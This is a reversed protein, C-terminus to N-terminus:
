FGGLSIPLITTRSGSERDVEKQWHRRQALLDDYQVTVGEAVIQRVGPNRALLAEIRALQDSAFSM